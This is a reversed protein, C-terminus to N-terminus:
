HCWASCRIEIPRKLRGRGAAVQEVNDLCFTKQKVKDPGATAQKMKDTGNTMQDIKM